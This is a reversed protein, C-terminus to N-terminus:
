TRAMLGPVFFTGQIERERLLRLIRRTGLVGFKGRSVATADAAGAWISITDVDFTPCITTTVENMM